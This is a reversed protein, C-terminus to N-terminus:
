PRQDPDPAAGRRDDAPAQNLSALLADVEARGADGAAQPDSTARAIAALMDVGRLLLDIQERRLVLQSRQAAFFIEEMAHAIDVASMLEILRAAGKLSHAARMSAELSQETTPDRELTLLSATLAQTHAEAELRFLNLLSFQSYDEGTSM